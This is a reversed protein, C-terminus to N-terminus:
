HAQTRAQRPPMGPLTTGYLRAAIGLLQLRMNRDNAGWRAVGILGRALAQLVARGAGTRRLNRVASYFHLPDELLRLVFYRQQAAQAIARREDRTPGIGSGDTLTAYSLADEIMEEELGKGAMVSMRNLLALRKLAADSVTERVPTLYEGLATEARLARGVMRDHHAFLQEREDHGYRRAAPGREGEHRRFVFTPRDLLAVPYRRVLRLLMEYDESTVLDERFPGVQRYCERQVLAGQLTTFCSRMFQLRLNSEDVRPWRHEATPEIAGNDGSRGWLHNSLVVKAGPRRDLLALRSQISTLMAVDDDDFIWVWEGTVMPLAFILARPKGGNEKHVYTIRSGCCNNVSRVREATDDTSGDDVVIIEHPPVTQGLLSHLCEELLAGRNYTPVLVSVTRAPM